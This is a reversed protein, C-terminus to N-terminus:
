LKISIGLGDLLLAVGCLMGLYGVLVVLAVENSVKLTNISLNVGGTLLNALLFM